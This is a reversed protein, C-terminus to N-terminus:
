IIDIKPNITLLYNVFAEKDQPSIYIDDFKNYYIYLGNYGLAPKFFSENYLGKQHKIKRINQIPIKGRFPGSSYYLYTADIRYNTDFLIWFLSLGVLLFIVSGISNEIAADDFLIFISMSILFTPLVTLLIGSLYHISSPFKRNM